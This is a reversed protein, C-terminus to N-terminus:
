YFVREDIGMKRGELFGLCGPVQPAGNGGSASIGLTRSESAVSEPWRLTFPRFSDEM